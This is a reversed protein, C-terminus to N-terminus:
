DRWFFTEPNEHAPSSIQTAHLANDVNVNRLGNKVIGWRPQGTSTGITYLNEAHLEFIQSMLEVRREPDVTQLVEAHTDQMFQIDEPPQEGSEGNSEWYEVWRPGWNVIAQRPLYFHPRQVADPGGGSAGWTSFDHQNALQRENFFSREIPNARAQIGLHEEWHSAVLETIDVHRTSVVDILIRLREGDPRLVYGSGDRELGLEELMARATDPDHEVYAYRHDPYYYPSAENPSAQAPETMGFSTLEIIEERDIALSLAKRFNPENLLERMVHDEHTLNPVYASHNARSIDLAERVRYDGREANDFLLPLQEIDSIENSFQYDLEGNMAMLKMVEADEVLEYVVRDLYPLQNGEPDVKWYYPNRVFVGRGDDAVSEVTLWPFLTPRDPNFQWFEKNAYLENWTDVGEDQILAELTDEDQYDTHFQSMYHKPHPIADLISALFDLFFANPTDFSIVFTYEDVAEFRGMEGDSTIWAPPSPTLTENELVSEFWFAFDDTTLLEGDSWRMGERLTFVFETAADNVEISEAINPIVGSADPKWRTLSEYAITRQIYTLDALGLIAGRWQGGYPGISEYPEVVLPELPLRDEVSPLDGAEVREVLEPAESYQAYGVSLLLLLGLFLNLSFLKKMM